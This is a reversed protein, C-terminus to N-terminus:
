LRRGSFTAWENIRDITFDDKKLDESITSFTQLSTNAAKLGAKISNSMDYDNLIGFVMGGVFSDGAGSVSKVTVPLLDARAAPYHTAVVNDSVDKCVHLVGHKGLTILLNDISRLCHAGVRNCEHLLKERPIDHRLLDNLKFSPETTRNLISHLANLELANPSAYALHNDSNILFPKTAKNVTAPDFWIPINYKTTLKIVENIAEESINSDIIVMGSNKINEEHDLIEAPTIMKHIDMDGVAILLEGGNNAVLSYSATPHHSIILGSTDMKLKNMSDILMEGPRDEGVASILLPNCDLRSLCETINRAVGGFSVHVKGPNTAEAIVDFSDATAKIDFISGGIIVPRKSKAANIKKSGVKIPSSKMESCCEEDSPIKGGNLIKERSPIKGGSPIKGQQKLQSLHKAIQAGVKANNEILNINAALSAGKSLTSVQSLVYPTIEKGSIGAEKANHLAVQIAEDISKGVHANEEPIPVGIVIGTKINVQEQSYICSAIDTVKELNYPAQFKSAPTFFSPFYKTSAHTIVPVGQTELYELTLGIDLISKVGACIVAVPTKGLEMLDASIDFSTQANRHVGGIGGTVFLSIGAKHAALMTASVTTGGHLKKSLVYSLDRRSTKVAETEPESLFKIEEESLGVILRGNIIGITAPIAGNDKIIKEVKLATSRNQPFPMGHTIITSELAVVPSCQLIAAKIDERVHLLSSSIYRRPLKTCLTKKIRIFSLM